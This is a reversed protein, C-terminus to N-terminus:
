RGAEPFAVLDKGDITLPKFRLRRVAALATDRFPPKGEEVDISEVSGSEGVVMRIRVSDGGRSTKDSDGPPPAVTGKMVDDFNLSAEFLSSTVYVGGRGKEFAMKIFKPELKKPSEPKRIKM